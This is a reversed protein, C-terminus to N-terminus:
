RQEVVVAGIQLARPGQRGFAVVFLESASAGPFGVGICQSIERGVVILRCSHVIVQRTITVFRM